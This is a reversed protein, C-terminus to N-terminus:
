FPQLFELCRGPSERPPHEFELLEVVVDFVAPTCEVPDGVSEGALGLHARYLRYSAAPVVTEAAGDSVIRGCVGVVSYVVVSQCSVYEMAKIEVLRRCVYLPFNTDWAFLSLLYHVLVVVGRGCSVASDRLRDRSDRALIIPGPHETLDGCVYPSTVCLCAESM